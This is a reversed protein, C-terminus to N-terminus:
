NDLYYGITSDSNISPWIADDIHNIVSDVNLTGGSFSLVVEYEYKIIVSDTAYFYPYTIYSFQDPRVWHYTFNRSTMYTSDTTFLSDGFAQLDITRNSGEDWFYYTSLSFGTGCGIIFQSGNSSGTYSRVHDLGSLREKTKEELNYRYLCGDQNFESGLFYIFRGDRSWSLQNPGQWFWGFDLLTRHQTEKDVFVVDDDQMYIFDQELSDFYTPFSSAPDRDVESDMGPIQCSVFLIGLITVYTWNINKM